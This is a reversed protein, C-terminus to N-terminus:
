MRVKGTLPTRRHRADSVCTLTVVSAHSQDKKVTSFTAFVMMTASDSGTAFASELQDSTLRLKMSVLSLNVVCSDRAHARMIHQRTVISCVWRKFPSSSYMSEKYVCRYCVVIKISHGAEGHRKASM